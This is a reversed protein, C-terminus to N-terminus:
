GEYSLPSLLPKRFRTDCTRIRGPAGSAGRRSGETERRSVSRVVRCSPRSRWRPDQPRAALLLAKGAPVYGASLAEGVHPWFKSILELNPPIAAAQQAAVARKGV